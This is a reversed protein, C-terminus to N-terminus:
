PTIILDRRYLATMLGLLEAALEDRDRDPFAQYFVEVAKDLGTPEALMRWLAGGTENLQFIAEGNAEALFLSQGVQREAIDPNQIFIGDAFPDPEAM